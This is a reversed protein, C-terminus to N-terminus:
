RNSASKNKLKNKADAHRLFEIFFGSLLILNFTRNQESLLFYSAILVLAWVISSFILSESIFQKLESTKEM